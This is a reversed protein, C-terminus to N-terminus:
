GRRGHGFGLQSRDQRGWSRSLLPEPVGQQARALETRMGLATDECLQFKSNTAETPPPLSRPALGLFPKRQVRPQVRRRGSVFVEVARRWPGSLRNADLASLM